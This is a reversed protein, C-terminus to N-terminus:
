AQGEISTHRSSEFPVSKLDEMEEFPFFGKTFVRILSGNKLSEESSKEKDRVANSLVTHEATTDRSATTINGNICNEIALAFLLNESRDITVRSQVIKIGLSFSIKPIGVIIDKVRVLTPAPSQLTVNGHMYRTCEAGSNLLFNETLFEKLSRQASDFLQQELTGAAKGTPSVIPTSSVPGENGFKLDLSVPENTPSLAVTDHLKLKGISPQIVQLHFDIIKGPLGWEEPTLDRITFLEINEHTAQTIAGSQFGKSSFIVGRSAGVERITTALADIHLREVPSNWYKCEVVVLHEYLGQKHRILVDIQRPAGSRGALVVNHEVMVNGTKHLEAVFKEFGGWDQVLDSINMFNRPQIRIIV